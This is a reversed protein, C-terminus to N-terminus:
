IVRAGESRNVHLQRFTAQWQTSTKPTVRAYCAACRPTRYRLTARRLKKDRVSWRYWSIIKTQYLVVAPIKNAPNFRKSLSLNSFSRPNYRKMGIHKRNRSRESTTAERTVITEDHIRSVRRPTQSKLKKSFENIAIIWGKHNCKERISSLFIVTNNRVVFKMNVVYCDSNFM